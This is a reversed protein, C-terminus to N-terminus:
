RRLKPKALKQMKLPPENGKAPRLEFRLGGTYFAIVNYLGATLAALGAGLVAFFLPFLLVAAWGIPAEMGRLATFPPMGTGVLIQMVAATTIGYVLGFVAGMVGGVRSAAGKSIRRLEFM